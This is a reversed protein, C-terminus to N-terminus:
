EDFVIRKTVFNEFFYKKQSGALNFRWSEGTNKDFAYYPYMDVPSTKVKFVYTDKYPVMSEVKKKTRREIIIKAKEVEFM